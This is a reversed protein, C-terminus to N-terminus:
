EGINTAPHRKARDIEDAIMQKAWPAGLPRDPRPESGGLPPMGHYTPLTVGAMQGTIEANIQERTM